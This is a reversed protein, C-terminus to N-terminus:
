QEECSGSIASCFVSGISDCDITYDGRSPTNISDYVCGEVSLEPWETITCVSGDSEQCILDGSGEGNDNGPAVLVCGKFECEQAFDLISSATAVATQMRTRERQNGIAVFVVGGLIAIITMVLLLEILTFAKERRSKNKTYNIM